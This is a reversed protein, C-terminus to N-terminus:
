PGVAARVMAEHEPRAQAVAQWAAQDTEWSNCSTSCPWSTTIAREPTGIARSTAQCAGGRGTAAGPAIRPWIWSLSSKSAGRSPSNSASYHRPQQEMGMQNQPPQVTIWPQRLWHHLPHLRRLRLHEHTLRGQPLHRDLHRFSPGSFRLCPKSGPTSPATGLCSRFLGPVAAMQSSRSKMRKMWDEQCIVSVQAWDRHVIPAACQRSLDWPGDGIDLFPRPRSLLLRYRTGRGQLTRQGPANAACCRGLPETPPCSRPGHILLFVDWSLEWGNSCRPFPSRQESRDLGM